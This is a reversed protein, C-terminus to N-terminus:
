KHNGMWERRAIALLWLCMFIPSMFIVKHTIETGIHRLHSPFTSPKYGRTPKVLNLFNQYTDPFMLPRLYLWYIVVSVFIFSLTFLTLNGLDRLRKSKEERDQRKKDKITLTPSHGHKPDTITWAPRPMPTYRPRRLHRELGLGTQGFIYLASWLWAIFVLVYILQM